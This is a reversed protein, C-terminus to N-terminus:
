FYKSAVFDVLICTLLGEWKKKKKFEIVTITKILVNILKYRTLNNFKKKRM